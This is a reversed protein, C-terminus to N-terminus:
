ADGLEVPAPMPAAAVAEASSCGAMSAAYADVENYYARVTM